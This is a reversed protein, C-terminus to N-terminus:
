IMVLISINSFRSYHIRLGYSNKVKNYCQSNETKIVVLTYYNLNRRSYYLELIYQVMKVHMNM